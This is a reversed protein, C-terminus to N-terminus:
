GNSGADNIVNSLTSFGPSSIEIRDGPRCYQAAKVIIGTGLMILTGSPLYGDPGIDIKKSLPVDSFTAHLELIRAPVEKMIFRYKQTSYARDCIVGDDRFIRMRIELAYPDALDDSSIFERAFSGGGQWVKGYYTGDFEDSRGMMELQQATLDNALTYGIIEHKDGLLIALEPEPWHEIAENSAMAPHLTLPENNTSLSARTGKYFYSFDAYQSSHHNVLDRTLHQRVSKSPQYGYAVGLVQATEPFNFNKNYM